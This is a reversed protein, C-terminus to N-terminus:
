RRTASSLGRGTTRALGRESGPQHGVPLSFTVTAGTGLTSTVAITGGHAEVIRKAISLGLGFGGSRKTRSRDVRFFPEFVRHVDSEPIGVGHDAVRVVAYGDERAASVEVPASDSTSYKIANELVNQLVTRVKDADINAMLQEPVSVIRLGPMRRELRATVDRLLPVLDQRAPTVGRGGRLRELELLQSILQEMESIDAALGSRQETQPLLEIAVKMRTVPSRLEHSVDLLLQDRAAIMERVRSVMQNFAMTLRGFEDGTQPQLTVELDGAGLRTVADSLARLPRLQRRLVVHAAVVVISMVCLLLLLMTRHTRQMVRSGTWSLLYTGGDAAPVKYYRSGHFFPISRHMSGSDADEVRPLSNDTAWTGRPGDYRLDFGSRAKIGVAADLDPSAAAIARAQTEVLHDISRDSGGSGDLFWFFGAVLLLLSAAMTAMIALLRVFVSQRSIM